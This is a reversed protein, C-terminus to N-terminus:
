DASAPLDRPCLFRVLRAGGPGLGSWPGPVAFEALAGTPFKGAMRAAAAPDTASGTLAQALEQMGPNHGVLMVSRATQAVGNLLRLMQAPTALYLADLPEILPTEEFPQLAALTQQTRLATSVLVLDPELGLGRMAERLAAAARRGRHSLPRDHDPLSPDDWSSKAHRLLLLQRM